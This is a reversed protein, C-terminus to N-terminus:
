SSEESSKTSFADPWLDRLLRATLGDGIFRGLIGMFNALLAVSGEIAADPPQTAISARLGAWRAESPATGPIALWSDTARTLTVSRAFLTRIGLEGLVPTLHDVLKECTRTVSTAIQEASTAHGVESALISRAIHTLAGKVKPGDHVAV